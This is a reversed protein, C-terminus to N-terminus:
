SAEGRIRALTEARIQRRRAALETIRQDWEPDRASPMNVGPLNVWDMWAQLAADSREGVITNATWGFLVCVQEAAASRKAGGPTVLLGADALTDFLCDVVAARGQAHPVLGTVNLAGYVAQWASRIEADASDSRWRPDTPEAM